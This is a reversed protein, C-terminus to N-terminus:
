NNITVKFLYAPLRRRYARYLGAARFLDEYYRHLNLKVRISRLPRVVCHRATSMALGSLSRTYRYVPEAVIATQAACAMYCMNFAFDEGWPLGGDCRIAQQIILDRRYLKNWLVGWYFSNPHRSVQELLAERPLLMDTRLFGRLKCADPLVEWFPGVALQCRRTEAAAVLVRTSDPTLRDDSDCFQIYTGTAREIAANRAAAVGRNPQTLVILRADRQAIRRLIHPTEDTSGDDVALVELARYSQELVSRLCAELTRQANYVPVIISVLPQNENM